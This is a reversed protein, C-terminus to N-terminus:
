DLEALLGQLDLPASFMAIGGDETRPWESM